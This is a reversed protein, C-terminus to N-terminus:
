KVEQELKRLEDEEEPSLKSTSQPMAAVAARRAVAPVVTATARGAKQLGKAAVSNVIPLDVTNKLVRTSWDSRAVRDPQTLAKNGKILASLKDNASAVANPSDPYQESYANKLADGYGQGETQALKSNLKTLPEGEKYGVEGAIRKLKLADQPSVPGRDAIDGAVSAIRDFEPRVQEPIIGSETSFKSMGSAVKDAVDQSNIPGKIRNVANTLNGGEEALKSSVQRQMMGKTGVVGQDLLNTGLGPVLKKMGIAKQMLYDPIKNLGTKEGLLSMLGTGEGAPAFNAAAAEAIENGHGDTSDALKSVDTSMGKGRILDELSPKGQPATQESELQKLEAEEQPSLPM